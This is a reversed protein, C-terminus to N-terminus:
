WRMCGYVIIFPMMITTTACINEFTVKRFSTPLAERYEPILLKLFHIALNVFAIVILVKKQVSQDKNKLLLGLTLLVILFVGLTILHYTNWLEIVM